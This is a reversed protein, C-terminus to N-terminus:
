SKEEPKFHELINRIYTETEQRLIDSIANAFSNMSKDKELETKRDFEYRLVELDTDADILQFTAHLHASVTHKTQIREIAHVFGTIIYDPNLSYESSCSLFVGARDIIDYVLDSVAATPRVAWHHYFYYNLEHSESRIAIRTQNFAKAVRFDRIDVKYPLAKEIGYDQKQQAALSELVYYRRTIVKRSCSTVCIGLILLVLIIKPTRM